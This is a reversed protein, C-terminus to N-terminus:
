QSFLLYSVIILSIECVGLSIGAALDYREMKKLMTRDGTRNYENYYKDANIKFYAAASGAVVTIGVSVYHPLYNKENDVLRYPSIKKVKSELLEMKHYIEGGGSPLPIIVDSYGDKVLRILNKEGNAKLWLPTKGIISDNMKVFVGYPETNIYYLSPLTVDVKISDTTSVMITKYIANNLWINNDSPIFSIRHEGLAVNFPQLPTIGVFISDVFVRVNDRHCKIQIMASDPQELSFSVWASQTLLFSYIMIVILRM